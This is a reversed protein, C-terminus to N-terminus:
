ECPKWVWDRSRRFTLRALVILTTLWVAGFACCLAPSTLAVALGLLTFSVASLGAAAAAPVRLRLLRTRRRLRVAARDHRLTEELEALVRCERASLSIEDM